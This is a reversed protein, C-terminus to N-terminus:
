RKTMSAVINPTAAMPKASKEALPAPKVQRGPTYRDERRKEWSDIEAQVLEVDRSGTLLTRWKDPNFNEGDVSIRAKVAREVREAFLNRGLEADRAVRRIADIGLPEGLIEAIEADRAKVAALHGLVNRAMARAEPMRDEEEDEDDKKAAPLISDGYQLGAYKETTKVSIKPPTKFHGGKNDGDHTHGEHRQEVEASAAPPPVAKEPPPTEGEAPPNKAEEEKAKLEALIGPALMEAAAEPDQEEDGPDGDYDAGHGGKIDEADVNLGVHFHGAHRKTTAMEKEKGPDPAPSSGATVATGGSITQSSGNSWPVWVGQEHRPLRHAFREELRVIDTNALMGRRAMEEAKRMIMASPSSNKFVLSSEHLDNDRMLAWAVGDDKYDVGPMHRCPGGGEPGFFGAIMDNNCIGCKYQGVTFSISVRRLAGMQIGRILDNSNQGNVTFDRPIAYKGIAWKTTAHKAKDAFRRFFTKEYERRSPDAELLEGDYSVGYSFTNTQHSGLLAQGHKLDDAYNPLSTEPDPKTFFSDLGDSSVIMRFAYYDSPKREVRDDGFQLIKEFDEPGPEGNSGPVPPLVLGPSRSLMDEALERDPV